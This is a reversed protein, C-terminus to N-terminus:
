LAPHTGFVFIWVFLFRCVSGQYFGVLRGFLCDGVHGVYEIEGDAKVGFASYIRVKEYLSEAYVLEAHREVDTMSAIFGVVSSPHLTSM